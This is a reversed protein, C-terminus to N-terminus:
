AAAAFTRRRRSSASRSRWRWPLVIVGLTLFLTGAIGSIEAAMNLSQQTSEDAFLRAHDSMMAMYATNAAELKAQDDQLKARVSATPRDEAQAFDIQAADSEVQRRDNDVEAAQNMEEFGQQMLAHGVDAAQRECVAFVALGAAALCVFVVGIRIRMPSPRRRLDYWETLAEEGIRHDDPPRVFQGDGIGVPSLRKQKVSEGKSM